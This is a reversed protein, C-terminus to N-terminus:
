SGGCGSGSRTTRSRRGFRRTLERHEGLALRVEFDEELADVRLTELRRAEASFWATGTLGQLASGRWLAAGVRGRGGRCPTATACRPAPRRSCSRSGSRM